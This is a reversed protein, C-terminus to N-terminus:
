EEETEQQLEQLRADEPSRSALIGILESWEQAASGLMTDWSHVLIDADKLLTIKQAMDGNKDLNDAVLLGVVSKIGLATAAETASRIKLIYRECRSVHDFDLTLGPRMFEVVLLQDGSKLALDIRGRYAEDELGVEQAAEKLLTNVGTEVRYTEWRSSLLWPNAAVYDRLDNELTRSAIRSRLGEITKAKVKVAEAVNLADLVNVESLLELVQAPDLTEAEAMDSILEKLRGGEWATLVAGGLEEFQQDTLTEIGGLSRLAKRVTKAEHKGLNELRASFGALRDEIEKQRKEGRKKKWLV